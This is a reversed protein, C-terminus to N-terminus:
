RQGDHYLYVDIKLEPLVCIEKSVGNSIHQTRIKTMVGAMMGSTKTPVMM